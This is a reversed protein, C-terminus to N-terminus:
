FFLDSKLPVTDGTDIPAAIRNETKGFHGLDFGDQNISRSLRIKTKSLTGHSGNRSGDGIRDKACDSDTQAPNGERRFPDLCSQFIRLYGSFGLDRLTRNCQRRPAFMDTIAACELGIWSRAM